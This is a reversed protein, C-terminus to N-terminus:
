EYRVVFVYHFSSIYEILGYTKVFYYCMNVVICSRVTHVNWTTKSYRYCYCHVWFLFFFFFDSLRSHKFYEISRHFSTCIIHYKKRSANVIYLTWLLAAVSDYCEALNAICFIHKMCTRIRYFISSKHPKFNRRGSVM